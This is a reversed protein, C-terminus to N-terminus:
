DAPDDGTFGLLDCLLQGIRYRLYHTQGAYILGARRDPLGNWAQESLVYVGPADPPRSDRGSVVKALYDGIRFPGVWCFLASPSPQKMGKVETRKSVFTASRM